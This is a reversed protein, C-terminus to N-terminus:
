AKDKKGLGSLLVVLAIGAAMLLVPWVWKTRNVQTASQFVQRANAMECYSTKRNLTWVPTVLAAPYDRAGVLYNCLDSEYRAPNAAYPKFRDFARLDPRACAPDKCGNWFTNAPADARFLHAFGAYDAARQNVNGSGVAFGQLNVWGQSAPPKYLSATWVVFALGAFVGLILLYVLGYSPTGASAGIPYGRAALDDSMRKNSVKMGATFANDMVNVGAEFQEGQSAGMNLGNHFTGTIDNRFDSM